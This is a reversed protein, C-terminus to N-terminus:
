NNKKNNKCGYYILGNIQYTRSKVLNVCSAEKSKECYGCYNGEFGFPNKEIWTGKEQCEKIVLNDLTSNTM